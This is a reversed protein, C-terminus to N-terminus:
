RAPKMTKNAPTRLPTAIRSARDEVAHIREKVAVARELLLSRDWNGDTGGVQLSLSRSTGEGRLFIPEADTDIPVVSFAVKYGSLSTSTVAYAVAPERPLYQVALSGTGDGRLELRFYELGGGGLWVGVLDSLTPPPIKKAAVEGGYSAMVVVAIMSLLYARISVRRDYRHMEMARMRYMAVVRHQNLRDL